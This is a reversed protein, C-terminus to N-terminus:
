RADAVVKELFEVLPEIRPKELLLPQEACAAIADRTLSRRLGAEYGTAAFDFANVFAAPNFDVRVHPDTWSVPLCGAGYAEVIKETYYGPYLSNEPCLNVAFDRLVVDKAFGSTNHNSISRDFGRGFGKTPMVRALADFLTRRPESMHTAFLAARQPRDLLPRGLPQMLQEVSLLRAVRPNPVNAIGERSWDISEVWLPLRFHRGSAVGLDFSLAYDAEVANHRVNEATHFLRLAGSAPFPRLRGLAHLWERAKRRRRPAFPGVIVLDAKDARTIELRGGAIRHLVSMVLSRDYGAYQHQFGIKM